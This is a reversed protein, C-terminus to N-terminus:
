SLLHRFLPRRAIVLLRQKEVASYHGRRGNKRLADEAVGRERLELYRFPVCREVGNDDWNSEWAIAPQIANTCLCEASMVLTDPAGETNVDNVSSM